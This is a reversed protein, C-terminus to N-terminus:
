PYLPFQAEPLPEEDAKVDAEPPAKATTLGKETLRWKGVGFNQLVGRNHLTTIVGRVKPLRLPDSPGYVISAIEGVSAGPNDRFATIISKVITGKPTYPKNAKVKRAKTKTAAKKVQPAGKPAKEQMSPSISGQQKFAAIAAALISPTKLAGCGAIMAIVEADERTLFPHFRGVISDLYAVVHAPLNRKVQDKKM